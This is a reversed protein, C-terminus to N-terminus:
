IRAKPAKKDAMATLKWSAAELTFRKSERIYTLGEEVEPALSVFFRAKRHKRKAIKM